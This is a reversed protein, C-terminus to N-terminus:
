GGPSVEEGNEDNGVLLTRIRSREAAQADRRAKDAHLLRALFASRGKKTPALENLLLATERDFSLNISVSNPTRGKYREGNLLKTLM